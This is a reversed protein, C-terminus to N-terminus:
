QLNQWFLRKERGPDDIVTNKQADFVMTARSKLDVAPWDPLGAHNPNGARAFSAWAASLHRSLAETEPFKAWACSSPFSPAISPATAAMMLLLTIRSTISSFPRVARSPKANRRSRQM